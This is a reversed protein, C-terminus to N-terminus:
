EDNIKKSSFNLPIPNGMTCPTQIVNSGSLSDMRSEVITLRENQNTIIDYFRALAVTVGETASSVESMEQMMTVAKESLNYSKQSLELTNQNGLKIIKEYNDKLVEVATFNNDIKKDLLTFHENINEVHKRTAESNLNIQNNLIMNNNAIHDMRNNLSKGMEGTNRALDAGNAANINHSWITMGIAIGVGIAVIAIAGWMWWNTGTESATNIVIPVQEVVKEVPKIVEAPIIAM